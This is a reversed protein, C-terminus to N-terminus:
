QLISRTPKLHEEKEQNGFPQLMVQAILNLIHASCCVWQVEGKFCPWCYLKIKKIMTQNNTSNDTVIWFIKQFYNWLNLVSDWDLCQFSPSFSV